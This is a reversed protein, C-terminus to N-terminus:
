FLPDVRNLETIQVIRLGKGFSRTFMITLQLAAPVVLSINVKRITTMWVAEPM